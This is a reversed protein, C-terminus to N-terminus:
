LGAVVVAVVVAALVGALILPLAAVRKQAVISALVTAAAVFVVVTLATGHLLSISLLMVIISAGAVRQPRALPSTLHTERQLPHSM